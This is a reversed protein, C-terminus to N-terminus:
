DIGGQGMAEHGEDDRLKLGNSQATRYSAHAHFRGAEAVAEGVLGHQLHIDEGAGAFNEGAGALGVNIEEAQEGVGIARQAIRHAELNLQFGHGGIYLQAFFTEVGHLLCAAHKGVDGRGVGVAALGDVAEVAHDEGFVLGVEDEGAKGIFLAWGGIVRPVLNVVAAELM